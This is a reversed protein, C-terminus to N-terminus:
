LLKGRRRTQETQLEALENELRRLTRQRHELIVALSEPGHNPQERRSELVEILQLEYDIRGPKSTHVLWDLVDDPISALRASKDTATEIM